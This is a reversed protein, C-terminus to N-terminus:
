HGSGGCAGCCGGGSKPKDHLPYGARELVAAIEQASTSDSDYVIGVRSAGDSAVAEAVGDIARLAKTIKAVGAADLVGALQLNQHIM